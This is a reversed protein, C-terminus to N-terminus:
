MGGTSADEAKNVSIYTAKSAAGPVRGHDGQNGEGNFAYSTGYEMAAKNHSRNNKNNTLLNHSSKLTTPWEINGSEDNKELDELIM